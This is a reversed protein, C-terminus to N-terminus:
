AGIYFIVQDVAIKGAKDILYNRASRLPLKADGFPGGTVTVTLTLLANDEGGLSNLVNLSGPVILHGFEILGKVVKVLAQLPEAVEAIL